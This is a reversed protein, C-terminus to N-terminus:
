AGTIIVERGILQELHEIIGYDEFIEECLYYGNKDRELHNKFIDCIWCKQNRFYFSIILDAEQNSLHFKKM